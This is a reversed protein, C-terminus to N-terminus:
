ESVKERWSTHKGDDFTLRKEQSLSGRDDTEDDVLFM